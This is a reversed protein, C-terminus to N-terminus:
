LAPRAVCYAPLDASAPVGSDAWTTAVGRPHAEFFRVIQGQLYWQPITHGGGHDCQVVDHGLGNLYPVDRKGNEDFRLTTTGLPYNDSPGGHVLLQAYTAGVTLEPWTVLAAFNALAEKNPPNSFYTGSFSVISALQEGRVVGLLDSAIAGASFGVSHVRDRDVGYKQDLCTLVEDFLRAETPPSKLKIIEWDMGNPPLAGLDDPTVLIFPYTADNVHGSLLFAMNAATDGFGHWNFVVPWPGAVSAREPLHLLFTRAKGDVDFGSNTGAKLAECKPDVVKPVDATADVQPAADPTPADAGALDSPTSPDDAPVDIAPADAATDSTPGVDQGGTGDDGSCSCALTLAALLVFTALKTM